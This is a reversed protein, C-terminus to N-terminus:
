ILFSSLGTTGRGRSLVLGRVKVGVGEGFMVLSVWENVGGSGGVWSSGSVWRTGDGLGLGLDGVRGGIWGRGLLSVM